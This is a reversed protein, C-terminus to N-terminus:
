DPDLKPNTVPVDKPVLDGPEHHDTIVVDIGRERLLDVEPGSSIGCDVTVVLGPSMSELREISAETLGYGERFRNPVVASITAGLASLGRMALAASSIGDLDFDGFVVIRENERVAHAVRAAADDMGPIVSPDAWDRDLDPELFNKASEGDTFGRLALVRAVTKSLGTASAVREVVAEDVEAVRWRDEREVGYEETDEAM